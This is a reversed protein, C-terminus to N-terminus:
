YWCLDYQVPGKVSDGAVAVTWKGAEPYIGGAGSVTMRVARDSRSDDADSFHWTTGGPSVLTLSLSLCGQHLQVIFNIM